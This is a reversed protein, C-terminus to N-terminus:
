AKSFGKPTPTLGTFVIVNLHRWVDEYTAIDNAEILVYVVLTAGADKLYLM